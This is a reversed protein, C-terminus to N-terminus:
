KSKDEFLIAQVCSLISQDDGASFSGSDFARDGFLEDLEVACRYENM